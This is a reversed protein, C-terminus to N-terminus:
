DLDFTTWMAYWVKVPTGDVQAPTFEWDALTELTAETLGFPVGKAVRPCVLKGNEDLISVIWVTGEFRARRARENYGPMPNSLPKPATIDPDEQNRNKAGDLCRALKTSEPSSRPGALDLYRELEARAEVVRGQIYLVEALSYLTPVAGDGALELVKRFAAEAERAASTPESSEEGSRLLGSVKGYQYHAVGLLNYAGAQEAPSGALEVATRATKRADNAKGLGLEARALGFAAAFSGSDAQRIAKRFTAAAKKFRGEDLLLEGREVLEKGRDEDAGAPIACLLTLLLVGTRM